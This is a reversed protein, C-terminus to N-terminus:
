DENTVDEQFFNVVLQSLECANYGNTVFDCVCEAICESANTQAYRCMQKQLNYLKVDYKKAVTDLIYKAASSNAWAHLQYDRTKDSYHKEIYIKVLIHGAEHAGLGKFSMNAPHYWKGNIFSNLKKEKVPKIKNFRNYNIYVTGDYTANAFWNNNHWTDIKKIHGKLQPFMDISLVIGNIVAFVSKFHLQKVKNTITIGYPHLANELEKFNECNLM